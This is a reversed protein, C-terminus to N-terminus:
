KEGFNSCSAAAYLHRVKDEQERLPGDALKMADCVTLNPNKLLYEVDMQFCSGPDCQEKAHQTHSMEHTQLNTLLM